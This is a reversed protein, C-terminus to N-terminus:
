SPSLWMPLGGLADASVTNPDYSIGNLTKATHQVIEYGRTAVDPGNYARWYHSFKLDDHLQKSSLPLGFGLYVGPIYGAALVSDYWANAYDICDQATASASPTELDLFLNMGPPLGIEAAYKAAYTGYETGLAATPNWGPIPCHQVASLSLGANLITDKEGSTLNGPILAPTRPLYRLCASYGAKLFADALSATVEQDIDFAMGPTAQKVISM